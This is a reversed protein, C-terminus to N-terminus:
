ERHGRADAVHAWATKVGAGSRSSALCLCTTMLVTGAAGAATGRHGAGGEDAGASVDFATGSPTSYCTNHRASLGGCGAGRRTKGREGVRDRGVADGVAATGPRAKRRWARVAVQPMGGVV